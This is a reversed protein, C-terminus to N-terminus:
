SEAHQQAGWENVREQCRFVAESSFLEPYKVVVAEFAFSELGMELLAHYGATETPKNVAREVAPIIGRERIMRWTYSARIRKGHKHFLVEEYAFVAALAEREAQSTAGEAETRLLVARQRAEQALDTRGGALANKIFRACDEPTKLAVVRKDM